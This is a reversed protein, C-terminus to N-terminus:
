LDQACIFGYEKVFEKTVIYHQRMELTKANQALKKLDFQSGKNKVELAIKEEPLIFDIEGGIRKEYYNQKEFNRLNNLVANEFLNGADVKGIHNVIGTDCFYVKKAGSVERDVNKSFPKLLQIFYTGELFSIYSYVTPRALGIERALKAVDLKSGVRQLLLLLLERFASIEHFDAMFQVDKEFYSKFIEKLYEKKMKHNDALVVQPFGGFNLYEDYYKKTQEFRIFNKQKDKAKFTKNFDTKVHKFMLFEEFDLPFMEFVLKRGALSEPFLNKLYFSSSGTVFFKVDYHDYLYKIVKVINPYAQIEDLFLYAKENKVIGREELNAWINNYDIEQFLRQDLPNEVDFFAKNESDVKDYIMKLLTTKGVRRMGTIVFIEKDNIRSIIKKYIKREFYQM